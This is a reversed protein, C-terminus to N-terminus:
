DELNMKAGCHPCYNTKSYLSFWHGCESCIAHPEMEGSLWKGRRVVEKKELECTLSEILLGATRLRDNVVRVSEGWVPQNLEEVIRKVDDTM